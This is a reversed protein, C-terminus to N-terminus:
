FLVATGIKLTSCSTAFFCIVRKEMVSFVSKEKCGLAFAYTKFFCIALSERESHQLSARVLAYHSKLIKTGVGEHRLM